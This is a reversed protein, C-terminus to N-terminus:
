AMLAAKALGTSLKFDSHCRYDRQSTACTQEDSKSLSTQLHSTLNNCSASEKHVFARM